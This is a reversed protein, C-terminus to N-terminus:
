RPDFEGNKVGTVFASWTQPGVALYGGGRNKSDRVGVLRPTLAVEVCAGDCASRTSKRWAADFPTAPTM